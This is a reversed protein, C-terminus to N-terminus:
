NRAEDYITEWALFKKAEEKLPQVDEAVCFIIGSKYVRASSGNNSIIDDMFAKTEADKNRKSPHM